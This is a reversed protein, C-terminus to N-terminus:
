IIADQLQGVMAHLRINDYFPSQTAWWIGHLVLDTKYDRYNRKWDMVWSM